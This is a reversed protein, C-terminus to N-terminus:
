KKAMKSFDAIDTFVDVFNNLLMVRNNRKAEDKDKIMVEDFFTDIPGRLAGLCKLTSSYDDKALFKSISAKANKIAEDLDKEPNQFLSTNLEVNLKPDRLNNARAYATALDLFLESDNSRADQLANCRSIFVVPEEVKVASVAEITDADIASDRLIVKTRTIIFDVVDAYVKDRNFKIGDAELRDLAFNIANVVSFNLGSKIISIVGIAGRRLAFPDSSGTPAQDAAFLGCISDIKDAAAVCKGVNTQPVEDGAFRPMYHQGIAQAVVNSEGSAKAYYSGMVGQVQTFEVVAGTVLDAKALIGARKADKIESDSLGTDKAIAGSLAAIRNAKAKMTGLQEQFVVDDLKEVYSELPQKKDEEFFFQADYLRAAVVRQNGDVITAENKPNGNSVIIFKNTLAGSKSFLPFYRQHVLMADVIIEKPVDLFKSDFEGVMCTPYECLNVVEQMINKPLQAALGHKQELQKIQTRILEERQEETTVVYANKLTPLLEDASKCEFPGPALFRHGYTKNSSKLGAYEINIIDSGFM